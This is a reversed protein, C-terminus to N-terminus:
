GTGHPDHEEHRVTNQSRLRYLVQGAHPVVLIGEDERHMWEQPHIHDPDRFGVNLRMCLDEPIRTAFTVEVRPREVGHEFKGSGRVHTSHALVGWPFDKFRSWQRVFYDRVHYGIRDLIHGHVLSTRSIHPAYLIVEGGDAVVPETKYMGKAGTWMDPYMDPILSLVKKFPRDAYIIHVQSSLESAREWAQEPPGVFLGRLGEETVVLAFCLKQRDIFSAARDIVARVPTYGAGIIEYNTILAGLWHTFNIVEAGGIGPFFYKNGGSFGVVEHPFVPGFILISDYDLVMRNIRVDVPLSMLGGTLASTEDASIAGVSTFSEPLDWRHNHLGVDAYRTAKEEASIGVHRLLAEESMLTHTGLAVLYDLAQVKGSLAEHFLRFFLPIPASRTGDPIIVLVRKGTLDAADLARQVIGEIEQDSLSRQPSGMGLVDDTM